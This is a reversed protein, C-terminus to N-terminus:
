SKLDNLLAQDINFFSTSEKTGIKLPHKPDEKNDFDEVRLVRFPKLLTM